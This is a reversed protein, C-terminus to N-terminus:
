FLKSCRLLPKSLDFLLICYLTFVKSICFSIVEHGKTSLVRLLKGNTLSTLTIEIEVKFPITTTLNM